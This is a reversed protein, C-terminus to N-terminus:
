CAKMGCTLGSFELVKPPARGAARMQLADPHARLQAPLQELEANAELYNGLGLWGEAANLHLKDERSFTKM